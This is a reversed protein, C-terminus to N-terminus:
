CWSGYKFSKKRAPLIGVRRMVDEDFIAMETGYVYAIEADISAPLEGRWLALSLKEAFSSQCYETPFQCLNELAFKAVDISRAGYLMVLRKTLDESWNLLCALHRLQAMTAALDEVFPRVHTTCPNFKGLRHCIMDMVQEAIRRYTTMKGGIISLLGALGDRTHDVVLHSRSIDSPSKYNNLVLARVGAFIGLIDSLPAEPFYHRAANVLYDVEADSVSLNELPERLDTDTTGILSFGNWPLVFFVRRDQPALLTFAHETFQPVVIHIGKTLRTRRPANPNASAIISDVWPGTANVIWKARIELIDGSLRDRVQVGFVRGDKVLLREVIAYNAICAGHKVADLLNEICLREPFPEQADFYSWAGLLGNAKLMPECNLLEKTSWRKPLLGQADKALREYIWIGIPAGFRWLKPSDEYIPMIFRFKKIRHAVLHLLIAREQLAERVLSIDGMALYRLGGHILRSSSGTTASSFDGKEVLAVSVGRLAADRAIGCGFIGGGIVLIDFVETSMRKLDRKMGESTMM